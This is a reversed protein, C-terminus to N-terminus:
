FAVYLVAGDAPMVWSQKRCWWRTLLPLRQNVVTQAPFAKLYILVAWWTRQRRMVCLCCSFEYNWDRWLDGARLFPPRRSASIAAQPRASEAHDRQLIVVDRGLITAHSRVTAHNVAM